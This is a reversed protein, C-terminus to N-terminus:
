SEVPLLIVETMGTVRSKFSQADMQTAEEGAGGWNYPIAWSPRMRDVLELATAVSLRGYGDIPLLIIDPKFHEVDPIVESEGVYYIDYLGVSILFGLKGASEAGSESRRTAAPIATISARGVSISQWERLVTMGTIVRSASKSGIVLTDEERIKEVDAPSCHDFHDHGILIIDPSTESKVVRWPAIQITPEGEITFSGHGQWRIREIM